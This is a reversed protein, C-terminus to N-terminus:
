SKRLTQSPIYHTSDKPIQKTKLTLPSRVRRWQEKLIGILDKLIENIEKFPEMLIYDTSDEPIQGPICDNPDKPIHVEDM